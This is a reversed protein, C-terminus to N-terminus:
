ETEDQPTHLSVIVSRVFSGKKATLLLRYNNFNEPIKLGIHPGVGVDRIALYNGYDDCKVLSWEFLIGKFAKGEVWGAGELDVVAVYKLAINPYLFAVPKVINVDFSKVEVTDHNLFRKLDFYDMKTRGKWDIIGGFAIRNNEHEDQWATVFYSPLDPDIKIQKYIAKVPIESYVYSIKSKKLSDILQPLTRDTKVVLGVADIGSIQSVLGAYYISQRNVELDVIIPRSSDILKIENVLRRLWFLYAENQYLLEPKHYFDKQNYLVDNQINWSTIHAKNKLEAVKKLIQTELENVVLTDRIFDLEAPVWFGYSIDLEKEQAIKLVNYEYFSKWEFKITSIGLEKMASLDRELNNRSLVHYDKKWDHGKKLNIGAINKIPIKTSEFKQSMLSERKLKALVYEPVEKSVFANKIVTPNDVIWDLSGKQHVGNPFNRDLKSNFFVVSKIEGFKNTIDDFSSKIWEDQSIAGNKLTGFESIIVPTLPLKEFEVHFPDYLDSFSYSKHDSNLQAYNLIDVGIWDVYEKGPYFLVVNQAKWPNWIWLVNYVDLRKFIEYCHIWADKFLAAKTGDVYWPYLPNDFEHAFRLFVPRNMRKLKDAFASIYGDFEGNIILEYVNGSKIQDPFSTLWPEWTILPISKQLYISDLLQTPFSSEVDKDWALYFSVIDFNEGIKASLSAVEALSTVGNDLQPAFIGIYNIVSKNKVEPKVGKWKVYQIDAKIFGFSVILLVVVPLAAKQWLTFYINKIRMWLESGKEEIDFSFKVAKPKEFAFRLTYLMFGANLLAFGSMFLSFPTFDRLLGYFVALISMVAIALNPVLIKWSTKDKDDKPTPLYPVKKGLITYIFGLFFVWWSCAQLLGGIFHVGRESKYMVWKQVYFRIGLISVFVPLVIAGFNVINGRWPTISFLLSLIPILFSIFYVIGSLYHFPLIAYHFRQRWSFSKFLKPFVSVLLDLTGRSWKLQQMYYATLSSPVLGKTYINPVYVSKWGKAHLQMATHMDESLGPAHGGISDLAERRFMCNAGIANVTGYNNMSMMVPGYFHFTQQAAGKAVLSEDINYYAQVTQVFGVSDDEFYPMVDELFSEKPVHDPDLILCIEGSAQQLANNINGAKANIRNTRTVHIIDNEACFQKLYPDNAEDCLYTTHAVRMQKIALLTRKIMEYPEGPFYTTLVDVSFSKRSNPRLPVTISWYHYWIYLVKLTDYGIALALLVFLSVNDILSRNFFWYYFNAISLIGLVILIRLNLLERRTPNLIHNQSSM